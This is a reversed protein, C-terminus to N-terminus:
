ADEETLQARLAEFEARPIWFGIDGYPQAKEVADHAAQALTVKATKALDLSTKALEKARTEWLPHSAPLKLDLTENAVQEAEEVGGLTLLEGGAAKQQSESWSPQEGKPKPPIAERVRLRLEEVTWDNTVAAGLWEIQERPELRAVESHHSFSLNERRRSVAVKGCISAVNALYQYPLGTADIAQAYREGYVREGFNLADGLWFKAASHIHSSARVIQAFTEYTLEPDTVRLSVPGLEVGPIALQDVVSAVEVTTM